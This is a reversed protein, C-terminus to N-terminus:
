WTVRCHSSLAVCVYGFLDLEDLGWNLQLSGAPAGATSTWCACMYSCSVRCCSLQHAKCAPSQTQTFLLLRNCCSMGVILAEHTVSHSVSLSWWQATHALWHLTVVHTQKRVRTHRYAHQNHMHKHTHTLHMKDKLLIMYYFTITSFKSSFCTNM